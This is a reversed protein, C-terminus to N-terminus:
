QRGVRGTASLKSRTSRAGIPLLSAFDDSLILFVRRPSFSLFTFNNRRNSSVASRILGVRRTQRKKSPLREKPYKERPPVPPPHPTNTAN